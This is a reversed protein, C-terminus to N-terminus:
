KRYMDIRVRDTEPISLNTNMAECSLTADLDDRTLLPIRLTNRLTLEGAYIVAPNNSYPRRSVSGYKWRHSVDPRDATGDVVDEGVNPNFPDVITYNSDIVVGNKKWLLTPPPNGSPHYLTTHPTDRKFFYSAHSINEARPISFARTDRKREKEYKKGVKKRPLESPAKWWSKNDRAVNKKELSAEESRM